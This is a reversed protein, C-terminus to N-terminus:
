LSSSHKRSFSNIDAGKCEAMNHFVSEDFVLLVFIRFVSLSHQPMFGSLKTM